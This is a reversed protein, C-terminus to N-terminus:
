FALTVGGYLGTLTTDFDVQTGGDDYKGELDTHRYGANLLVHFGDPDGFLRIGALLDLDLYGMKKGDYSVDMWGLDGSVMARWFEFKARGALIPIAVTTANNGLGPVASSSVTTDWGVGALGLGIGADITKGPVFDWTVAAQTLTVELDTNIPNGAPITVDGVTIDSATTGSGSFESRSGSVLVHLGSWGFDVRGGPTGNDEDLGLDTSIDNYSTTGLASGSVRGEIKTKGYRPMVSISPGGCSAVACAVLLPGVVLLKRIQM